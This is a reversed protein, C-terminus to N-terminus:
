PRWGQDLLAARVLHVAIHANAGLMGKHIRVVRWGDEMAEGLKEIDREFQQPDDRHRWGDYEVLVRFQLYVLDGLRLQVGFRNLVPHNILPEPLGARVLVLRLETEKPSDTRARALPLAARLLKAGHRGTHSRVARSLQDLNATPHHREMLQDAIIVVQELSLLPALMCWTDLPATTLLGDVAVAAVRGDPVVHSRVGRTRPRHGPSATAVHITLDTALRRPLYFGHIHAATTHSFVVRHSIRRQYSMARALVLDRIRTWYELGDTDSPIDTLLLTDDGGIASRVGTFPTALDRRRLRERSIGDAIAETVSLPRGSLEKPLPTPSRM